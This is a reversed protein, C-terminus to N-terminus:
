GSRGGQKAREMKVHRQAQEQLRALLQMQQIELASLNQQQGPRVYFQNYEKINPQGRLSEELAERTDIAKLKNVDVDSVKVGTLLNLAKPLVGKREDILKDVTSVMRTIPTNALVQALWQPNDDHILGGIASAVGQPRLDSLRRGTHFQKDFLQELPAKILPNMSGAYSLATGGIDPMGGKMKLRDFAEEIPLGLSSLYRQTGNKGEGVPLAVGSAMYKPVYNEDREQMLPRIQAELVRPHALGEKIQFPLNRRAFTYFPVLSRMFNQEFKTADGYDFHLEMMRRAAEAPTMGKRMNGLMNAGRFFDEVNTGLMRGTALPSWTDQTRNGVGRQGLVNLPSTEGPKGLFYEKLMNLSDGVFSGTQGARDTGPTPPTIRGNNALGPIQGALENAVNRHNFVGGSFLTRRLEDANAPAASGGRMLRYMLGYDQLGTADRINNFGATFANRVHAAPWIPYVLNKFLNAYTNFWAAPQKIQEPTVWRSYAKLIQQAQEKSVSYRGVAKSMARPNAAMAADLPGMGQRALAKYAQPLAGIVTSDGPGYIPHSEMGLKSMLKQVSVRDPGQLKRAERGIMGYVSAATAMTQAHQEGRQAQTAALNPSYLTAKQKVHEPSLGFLGKSVAEAKRDFQHGLERTMRGGDAVFARVMDGKVIRAVEKGSKTRGVGTLRPDVSWKDIATSGGPVNRTWQKRHINSGTATPLISHSDRAQIDRPDVSQAQLHLYPRYNENHGYMPLGAAQESALIDRGYQVEGRAIPAVESALGPHLGKAGTEEAVARVARLVDEEPAIIGQSLDNLKRTLDFNHAAAEARKARLVPTGHERAARQTIADTAGRVSNDFLSSVVRVAPIKYKVFDGAKDLGKAVGQAMKGTGLVAQPGKGFPLGIRVMGGLPENSKVPLGEPAVRKGQNVLHEIEETTRGAAKLEPVTHEFGKLMAERSFGGLLGAKKSAEGAKTLAHFSGTGSVANLPDLLMETGLGAGWAGWGKDGPRTLGARNTLDRGSVANDPNTLGLSDSFPIAAALERPKGGLVGRLARGPKDLVSGVYALGSVSKDLLRRGMAQSAALPM